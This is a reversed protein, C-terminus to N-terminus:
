ECRVLKLVTAEEQPGELDDGISDFLDGRLEEPRIGVAYLSSDFSRTPKAVIAPARGPM